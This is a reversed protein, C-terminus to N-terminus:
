GSDPTVPTVPSCAESQGHQRPPPVVTREALHNQIDQTAPRPSNRPPPLAALLPVHAGSAHQLKAPNLVIDVRAIRGEAMAFSIVAAVTGQCEAILGPAGNVVVPRLTVPWRHRVRLLYRAVREAGHVPRRAARIVGGGDSNVVVDHDLIRLLSALDGSNCAALFAESAARQERPSLEYRSVGSRVHQRARMDLQRCAAPSRGIAKAIDQYPLDFVEHLVFVTREAPTLAELVVLMAMHVSEEFVVRSEPRAKEDPDEVIPEPLWPGVYTERQRRASKLQDIAIRSVVTTLWKRADRVKTRDHTYWRAM